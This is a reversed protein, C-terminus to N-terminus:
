KVRRQRTEPLFEVGEVQQIGDIKFKWYRGTIGRAILTKRGGFTSSYAPHTVADVIPTITTLTDSNLYATPVNKSQFTGFDTEKTTASGNIAVGNDTTGELLYLGDAKVGYPKNGINIIHMFGFNSYKTSEQTHVNMVYAVSNSVTDSGASSLSFLPWAGSFTAYSLGFTVFPLAATGTTAKTGSSVLSFEWLPLEARGTPSNTATATLGFSPATLAARAGGLATITSSFFSLGADGNGATTGTSSITSTFLPLAASGRELLTGTSSLALSFAPLSARAGGAAALSMTFLAANVQNADQHFGTAHISFSPADLFAFANYAPFQGADISMSGMTVIIDAYAFAAGVGSHTTGLVDMPTMPMVSPLTNGGSTGYANGYMSEFAAMVYTPGDPIISNATGEATMSPLSAVVETYYEWGSTGLATMSGLTCAGTWNLAVTTASATMSSMLCRGETRASGSVAYAGLSSLSASVSAYTPLVATAELSANLVEDGAFYLSSDLVIEGTSPVLSRYVIVGNKEYFVEIGKRYITFVDTTAFAQADTKIVGAEIVRYNGHSFYLGHTIEIYNTGTCDLVENLGVVVGSVSTPASFSAHGDGSLSAISRAASNWGEQPDYSITYVDPLVDYSYYGPITETYTSGGTERGEIRIRRWGNIGLEPIYGWNSFYTDSSAVSGSPYVILGPIYPDYGWAGSGYEYYTRTLAPHWIRVTYGPVISYVVQFTKELLNSM